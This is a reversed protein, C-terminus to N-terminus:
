YNLITIFLKILLITFLSNQKNTLFSFNATGEITYLLLSNSPLSAKTLPPVLPIPSSIALANKFVPAFTTIEPDDSVLSLLANSEKCCSFRLPIIISTAFGASIFADISFAAEKNGLIFILM